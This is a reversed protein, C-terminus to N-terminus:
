DFSLEEQLFSSNPDVIMQEDIAKRGLLMRYQMSERNTLSVEIPWELEGIRVPTEIVYRLEKEGNSSTVERRDVLKASSFV